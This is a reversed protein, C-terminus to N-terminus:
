GEEYRIQLIEFRLLGAPVQIEAVEGVRKGVLGQALPCTILIKNANPDDEGAGVLSFEEEEGTDLDKVRVVAGFAVQDRPMQASDVLYARALRDRYDRIRAELLLRSEQSFQYEANESLDGEARAKALRDLVKPLEVTELHQLEAKLKDYGARTMPIPDTM